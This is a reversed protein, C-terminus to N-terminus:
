GAIYLERGFSIQWGGSLLNGSAGGSIYALVGGRRGKRINGNENGQGEKRYLPKTDRCHVKSDWQLLRREFEKPCLYDDNEDPHYKFDLNEISVLCISGKLGKRIITYLNGNVIGHQFGPAPSMDYIIGDIKEDKGPECEAMGM